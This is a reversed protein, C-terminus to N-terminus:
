TRNSSLDMHRLMKLGLWFAAAGPPVSDHPWMCAAQQLEADTRRQFPTPAVYAFSRHGYIRECEEAPAYEECIKIHPAHQEHWNPDRILLLATVEPKLNCMDIVVGTRWLQAKGDKLLADLHQVYPHYYFWDYSGHHEPRHVNFLEEVYERRIVHWLCFEADFYRYEPTFMGAPIVHMTGSDVAVGGRSRRLVWIVWQGALQFCTLVSVALSVSRHAGNVAADPVAKRLEYRKPLLQLVDRPRLTRWKPIESLRTALEYKLYYATDVTLEYNGLDCHIEIGDAGRVIRDMRYTPDPIIRRTGLRESAENRLNKYTEDGILDDRLTRREQTWTAPKKLLPDPRHPYFREIKQPTDDLVTVPYRRGSVTLLPYGYVDQLFDYFHEGQLITFLNNEHLDIDEEPQTRVQVEAVFQYGTGRITQIISYPQQDGIAQRVSSICYQIADDTVAEVKWIDRRLADRGVVGPRHEILYLLVQFQRPELKNPQGARRLEQRGSDVTCDRFKYITTM